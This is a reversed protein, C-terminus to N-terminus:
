EYLTHTVIIVGPYIRTWKWPNRRTAEVPVDVLSHLLWRVNSRKDDYPSLGWPLWIDM